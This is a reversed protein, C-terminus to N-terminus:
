KPTNKSNSYFQNRMRSLYSDILQEDQVQQPNKKKGRRGMPRGGNDWCAQCLGNGLWGVKASLKQGKRKPPQVNHSGCTKHWKCAGNSIKVERGIGLGMLKGITAENIRIGDIYNASM